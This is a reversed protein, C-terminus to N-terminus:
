CFCQSTLNYSCSYHSFFLLLLLFIRLALLLLLVDLFMAITLIFTCTGQFSFTLLFAFIILGYHHLFPCFIHVTIYPDCFLFKFTFLVLVVGAESNFVFSKFGTKTTMIMHFNFSALISHVM